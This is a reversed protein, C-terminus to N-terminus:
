GHAGPGTVGALHLIVVILLLAGAVILAIVGGPSRGTDTEPQDDREPHPDM